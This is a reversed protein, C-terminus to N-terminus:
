EVIRWSPAAGAVAKSGEFFTRTGPSLLHNFDDRGTAGKYQFELGHLQGTALKRYQDIVGALQAPSSARSISAKIAERDALSGSAGIISKAVEDGVLEKTADFNTPAPKGTQEAIAQATRNFLKIDGNNLATAADNLTGLHDVLVNFSRVTDGQKGSTFRSYGSQGGQFSQTAKQIDEATADPNEDMFKKMYLGIASRAGGGQNKNEAILKDNKYMQSGPSLVHEGSDRGKMVAPSYPTGVVQGDAEGPKIWKDIVMGPNNPDAVTTLKPQTDKDTKLAITRQGTTTDINWINGNPDTEQTFTPIPNAKNNAATVNAPNQALALLEAPSANPYAKQLVSMSGQLALQKQANAAQLQQNALATQQGQQNMTAARMLNTSRDGPSMLALGLNILGDGGGGAGYINGIKDLFGGGSAAPPAVAPTVSPAPTTAGALSMPAQAPAPAQSLSAPKAGPAPTDAESDDPQPPALPTQGMLSSLLGMQPPPAQPPVPANPDAPAGVGQQQLFRLLGLKAPDFASVDTPGGLFDLLGAM